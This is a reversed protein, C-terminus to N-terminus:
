PPLTAIGAKAVAWSSGRVGRSLDFYIRFVSTGLQDTVIEGNNVTHMRRGPGKERRGAQLNDSTVQSSGIPFLAGNVLKRRSGTIQGDVPDQLKCWLRCSRVAVILGELGVNRKSAGGRGVGYSQKSMSSLGYSTVMAIPSNIHV